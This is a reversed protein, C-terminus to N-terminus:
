GEGGLARLVIGETLVQPLVRPAGGGAPYVLYLPVGEHGQARLLAGIAAEGRTWDAVLYAREPRALAARVAPTDLAVRDNVKCTICWAATVNVFVTRGEAQLAAVRGASWPEAGAKGAAQAPPAGQVFPLLALAALALGGACFRALRGTGAHQAQGWLWLAFALALGGALALALAEPAAMQALVWLMWAAAGYMPFALGQRLREMWAGPRPLARALGPALALLAYPAALGLGLAAFVALASAAPMSLAAGLAAAMFPATCPTAVLVALAGTFFSGWHGGRGALGQGLGNAGGLAYVGSLNLGIALMLWATAAVFAPETFQFGWGAASGAARLGVLLGGLALFSALVGATYSGAQARIAGRAEGSLRALGMAKMALVPFVCPMLNLILGGLFAAALAQWLGGAARPPPPVPGAEVSVAYASSAGARDTLRIVGEIRAPPAIEGKTLGLRLVGEALSMPQPAPNDILGVAEPFFFASAVTRPSLDPGELAIAGERGAFGARVAWPAPRPRAAEAAEFLPALRADPRAPAAEVPLDLRFRGEEPICIDKCVLWSAEAEITLVDGPKLTAPPTVGLPLFAEGEYGFSVLPGFPIRQPAPWDIPTSSSGPPLDLSIETPAGADGPNRWYTHWGPALRQRLALRLPRGPAAADTEAVLTVHARESVVPLSELASAARPAIAAALLLPLLLAPARMARVFGRPGAAALTERLRPRTM